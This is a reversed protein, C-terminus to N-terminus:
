KIQALFHCTIICISECVKTKCSTGDVNRMDWGRQGEKAGAVKPRIVFCRVCHNKVKKVYRVRKDCM